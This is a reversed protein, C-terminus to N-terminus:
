ATTTDVIASRSRVFDKVTNVGLQKMEKSVTPNKRLALSAYEVDGAHTEADKQDRVVTWDNKTFHADYYLRTQLWQAPNQLGELSFQPLLTTLPRPTPMPLAGILPDDGILRFPTQIAFGDDDLAVHEADPTATHKETKYGRVNTRKPRAASKAAKEENSPMPRRRFGRELRLSTTQDGQIPPAQPQADLAARNAAGQGEINMPPGRTKVVTGQKAKRQQLTTQALAHAMTNVLFEKAQIPKSAM